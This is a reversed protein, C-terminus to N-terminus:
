TRHRKPLSRAPIASTNQKSGDRFANAEAETMSYDDQQFSAVVDLMEAVELDPWLENPNVNLADALKLITKKQPRCRRNLMLSIAPQSCGVRSALDQQSIHKAEMLARLRAAFATQQTDMTAVEPSRQPVIQATGGESTVLGIGYDIDDEKEIHDFFLADTISRMAEQRERSNSKPNEVVSLMRFVVEQLETRCKALAAWFIEREAQPMQRTWNWLHTMSRLMEVTQPDDNLIVATM